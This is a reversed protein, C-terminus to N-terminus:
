LDYRLEASHTRLMCPHLRIREPRQQRARRVTHRQLASRRHVVPCRGGPLSGSPQRTVEVRAAAVPRRQGVSAPFEDDNAQAALELGSTHMADIKQTNTVNPTASVSTQLYLAGQTREHLLTVRWQSSGLVFEASLM